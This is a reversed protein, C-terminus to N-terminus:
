EWKQQKKEKEIIENIKKEEWEKSFFPLGFIKVYKIVLTLGLGLMVWYFWLRDPSTLLNIGVIFVSIMLFKIAKNNFYRIKSVHEQAARLREEEINNEM